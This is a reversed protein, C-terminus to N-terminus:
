VSTPSGAGLEWSGLVLMHSGERGVCALPHSPLSAM